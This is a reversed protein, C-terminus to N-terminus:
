DQPHQDQRVGAECEVINEQHGPVRGHVRTIDADGASKGARDGEVNREDGGGHIGDRFGFHRDRHRAGAPDADDVLVHRHVTLGGLHVPHLAALAPHDHIGDRQTGVTRKALGGRQHLPEPNGTNRDHVAFPRSM